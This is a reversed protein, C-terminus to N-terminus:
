STFSWTTTQAYTDNARVRIAPFSRHSPADPWGQAEFALANFNAPKTHGDFVQLGAETTAMVMTLGQKGTFWLVDRLPSKGTTLCYNHDFSHSTSSIEPGDRLDMKSGAADAIEGTPVADADTPLYHDAAIRLRGFRRMPPMKARICIYAAM